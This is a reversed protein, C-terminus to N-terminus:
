RVVLGNFGTRWVPRVLAEEKLKWYGRVEKVDDVLQKCFHCFHRCSLVLFFIGRRGTVEIGGEVKREIIHKLLCNRGNWDAKRGKIRHLVIM